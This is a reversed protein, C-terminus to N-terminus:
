ERVLSQREDSGGDEERHILGSRDLTRRRHAQREFPCVQRVAEESRGREFGPRRGASRMARGARTEELARFNRARRRTNSRMPFWTRWCRCPSARISWSWSRRRSRKRSSDDAAQGRRAPASNRRGLGLRVLDTPALNLKMEGREIRNADLLNQVMEAMRTATDHIRGACDTVEKAVRTWPEAASPQLSSVEEIIMEAYGKIAGLPNRLDHAAIGM